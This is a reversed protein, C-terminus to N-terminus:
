WAVCVFWGILLGLLDLLVLLSLLMTALLSALGALSGRCLSALSHGICFGVVGRAECVQDHLFPPLFSPLCFTAKFRSFIPYTYTLVRLNGLGHVKAQMQLIM